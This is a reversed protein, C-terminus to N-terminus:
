YKSETQCFECKKANKHILNYCSMCSKTKDKNVEKAQYSGFMYIGRAIFYWGMGNALMQVISASEVAKVGVLYFGAGISIISSIIVSIPTKM